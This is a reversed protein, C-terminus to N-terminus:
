FTTSIGPDEPPKYGPPQTESDPDDPSPQPAPAQDAKPKSKPAAKVPEPSLVSAKLWGLQGTRVVHVYALGEAKQLVLVKDNLHLRDLSSKFSGRRAYLRAGQKAVYMPEPEPESKKATEEPQQAPKPPAPKDAEPQKACGVAALVALLALLCLAHRM